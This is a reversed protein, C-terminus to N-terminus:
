IEILRETVDSQSGMAARWAGRDMSNELCSDQPLYGSGEGSGWEPVSGVDGACCASEKGDSSFLTTQVNYCGYSGM